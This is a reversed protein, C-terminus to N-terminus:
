APKLIMTEELRNVEVPANVILANGRIGPRSDIELEGKILNVRSNMNKWGNGAGSKLVESEFGTGNDEILLTVENEDRTIQVTAKDADSYKLINNIWEQTIRYLSIEQVETLRDEMGFLNVSVFIKDTKNVRDAFERVAPGIGHQILTQPMLNFCIGKLEQYMRDLIETSKEFVVHKDSGGKQLSQLNLNLLSIMQGFGDHLDRAFRSREKEQSSIATSLQSERLMTESQQRILDQKKRIRSKALLAIIMLLILAGTLGAIIAFNRQNEAKHGTIEAQQLAIQQEKKETEYKTQLEALQKSRAENFLSDKLAVHKKFYVMAMALNRQLLYADHMKLYIHSTFDTFSTKLAVPLAQKLYDLAEGPKEEMLKLEALNNLIIAYAQKNNLEKRIGAAKLFYAESEKFLGQKATVMGLNDYNYSLGVRDNVAKRYTISEFFYIKASDLHGTIDYVIGMNNISSGMQVTDRADKALQFARQFTTKSKQIAGNKKELTGIENLILSMCSLSGSQECLDLGLTLEMYAQDYLGETYFALGKVRRSLGMDESNGFMEARQYASDALMKAYEIDYSLARNASDLLVNIGALKSEPIEQSNLYLPVMFIIWLCKKM